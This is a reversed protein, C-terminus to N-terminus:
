PHEMLSVPLTVVADSQWKPLKMDMILGNETLNDVGSYSWLLRAILRTIKATADNTFPPLQRSMRSAELGGCAVVGVYSLGVPNLSSGIPWYQGRSAIGLQFEVAFGFGANLESTM